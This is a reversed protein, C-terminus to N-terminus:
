IQCKKFKTNQITFMCMMLQKLINKHLWSHNSVNKNTYIKLQIKHTISSVWRQKNLYTHDLTLKHKNTPKLPWVDSTSLECCGCEVSFSGFAVLFCIVLWSCVKSCCCKCRLVASRCDGRMTDGDVVSVGGVLMGVVLMGHMTELMRGIM